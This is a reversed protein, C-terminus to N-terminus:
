GPRDESNDPPNMGATNTAAPDDHSKAELAKPGDQSPADARRLNLPPATGDKNQGMFVTLHPFAIDVGAEDLVSKVIENYARGIAWQMGPKTKIRARVVVNSDGLAAVGHIEVPELINDALEGAKLIDFAKVLLEKVETVNERYAVGIDAM